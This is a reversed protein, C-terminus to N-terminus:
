IIIFIGFSVLLLAGCGERCFRPGTSLSHTNVILSRYEICVNVRSSMDAAKKTDVV